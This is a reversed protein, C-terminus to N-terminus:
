LNDYLSSAHNAPDAPIISYYSSALLLETIFWGEKGNVTRKEVIFKELGTTSGSSTIEPYTVTYEVATDSLKKEEKVTIPGVWPSSGGTVWGYNKVREMAKKRLEPSLAAYQLAGSRTQEGRGWLKMAEEPTAPILAEEIMKIQTEIEDRNPSEISLKNAMKDYTVEAKFVQQIWDALVYIHGNHIEIDYIAYPQHNVSLTIPKKKEFPQNELNLTLPRLPLHPVAIKKANEPLPWIEDEKRRNQSTLGQVYSSLKEFADYAEDTEISVTQTKPDWEVSRAGLQEAAWRIPVMVQGKATHVGPPAAVSGNIQITLAPSAFASSSGLASALLLSALIIKSKKM